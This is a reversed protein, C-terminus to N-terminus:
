SSVPTNIGELPSPSPAQHGRPSKRLFQYTLGIAIAMPLAGIAGFVVDGPLRVWEIVRMITENLFAPGRAHWYGNNLVDALQLVGGPFLSSVVMLALGINLGWFSVRVYKEVRQWQEDSLVQRMAFVMLGLALMGFVGMLAAHGHNPTLMTGVEFYSIIPMNILFGFVGAGIFNWFGVAMLFFFTWKHPISVQQGCIDCHGRTLKVFDWADLTLLTLPVVELASFTAALAMTVTSQGTWFWHHGTGIIGSGLFLIADLYIVRTATQRSVLGLKFFILAVMVTAFLEFFGEVWLHIIWFRWTDVVTFNTTSTFFMAPLYFLPIAVAAYLFLSSIGRTAPDKRAPSIARFLLIVWLVLGVALLIQWARGLDLYEWGQHGFWFWLRGLAGNIGLIEGILSGVAVFVLAGFLLNVWKSQNRPEGGGLAPALFLAGAVYATAIWLIALQVHWTRAINSPLLSSLDVGYFSGPDARYHATLAGTGVQALLLLGVVFFYKITARQSGTTTGGPIMQPHIHERTGKWGLFDFRGFAFLVAATGGLLAVISLASWLVAESTATNGAAPDYPFNNTYSYPKGPRDAVSAWATWAFFATLQRLEQPDKVYKSPLGADGSPQSFYATWDAIQNQYSATETATFTLIGTGPEYRNQKLTQQVEADIASREAASLTDPGAQYERSAIAQAEDSALTHLYQASFDPGLYAGHGWITGNEMLGYKLFVEQGASIDEGTFVTVGAPDVVEKPIPPADQYARVSLWILVSFGVFLILIVANRWWPSLIEPTTEEPHAEIDRMIAIRWKM